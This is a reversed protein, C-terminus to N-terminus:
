PTASPAFRGRGKRQGRRSVGAGSAACRLVSSSSRLFCARSYMFYGSKLTSMPKPSWWPQAMSPAIPLSCLTSTEYRDGCTFMDARRPSDIGVRAARPADAKECLSSSACLRCRLLEAHRQEHGAGKDLQERRLNPADPGLGKKPRRHRRAAGVAPTPARAPSLAALDVLDLHDARVLHGLQPRAVHRQDLVPDEHVREM